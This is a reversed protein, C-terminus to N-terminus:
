ERQLTYVHTNWCELCCLLLLLKLLCCVEDLLAVRDDNQTKKQVKVYM